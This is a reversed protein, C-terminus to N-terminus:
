FHFPALRVLLTVTLWHSRQNASSRHKRKDAGPISVHFRQDLVASESGIVCHEFPHLHLFRSIFLSECDIFSVQMIPSNCSASWNSDVGVADIVEEMVSVRVLQTLRFVGERIDVEDDATLEKPNRSTETPRGRLVWLRM